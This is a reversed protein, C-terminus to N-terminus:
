SGAVKRGPHIRRIHKKLDFNRCFGRGCEPCEFPKRDEHTHMHFALNYSQHFAQFCLLKSRLTTQLPFMGTVNFSLLIALLSRPQRIEVPPQGGDQSIDSGQSNNLIAMPIHTPLDSTIGFLRSKLFPIGLRFPGILSERYVNNLILAFVRQVPQSLRLPPVGPRKAGWYEASGWTSYCAITPYVQIFLAIMIRSVNVTSAMTSTQHRFLAFFMTGFGAISCVSIWWGNITLIGYQLYGWGGQQMYIRDAYKQLSAYEPHALVFAHGEAMGDNGWAMFFQIIFNPMVNLLYMMVFLRNLQVKELKWPSEYPLVSNARFIILHAVTCTHAQVLFLGISQLHCMLCFSYDQMEPPTKRYVIIIGTLNIIFVIPRFLILHAVTCTMVFIMIMGFTQQYFVDVQLYVTLLGHTSGMFQPLYLRPCVLITWVTEHVMGLVLHCQLCFSYDRMRPPTQTHVVYIGFINTIMVIPGIIKYITLINFYPNAYFDITSINTGAMQQDNEQKLRRNEANRTESITELLAINAQMRAMDSKTERMASRTRVMDSDIKALELKTAMGDAEDQSGKVKKKEVRRTEEFPNRGTQVDVAGQHDIREEIGKRHGNRLDNDPLEQKIERQVDTQTAFTSKEKSRPPLDRSM